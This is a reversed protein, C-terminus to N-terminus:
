SAFLNVNVGCPIPSQLIRSFPEPRPTSGLRMPSGAPWSLASGAASRREVEAPERKARRLHAASMTPRTLAPM